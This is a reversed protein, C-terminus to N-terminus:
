AITGLRERLSPLLHRVLINPNLATEVAHALGLFLLGIEGTLLTSNIREAIFNDRDKLLKNSQTKYRSDADPLTDHLAAQHLQYEQLLLRPDETGMLRCGKSMLDLLLQHNKSGQAAVDTVIDAEKACIPLGDQYLRVTSYPLELVTIMQRIGTWVEDISELHEVWRQHGYRNIYAQKTPELLSGMDHETHIIPILIITRM